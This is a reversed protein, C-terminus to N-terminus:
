FVFKKILVNLYNVDFIAGGCPKPADCITDERHKHARGRAKLADYIAGRGLSRLILILIM